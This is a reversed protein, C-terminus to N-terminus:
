IQRSESPRIAQDMCLVCKPFCTAIPFFIHWLFSSFACCLSIKQTTLDWEWNDHAVATWKPSCPGPNINRFGSDNYFIKPQFLRYLDDTGVERCQDSAGELNTLAGHLMTHDFFTIEIWFLLLNNWLSIKYVNMSCCYQFSLYTTGQILAMSIM